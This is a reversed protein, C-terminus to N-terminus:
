LSRCVNDRDIIGEGLFFILIENFSVAIILKLKSFEKAYIQAASTMENQMADVRAQAKQVRVEYDIKEDEWDTQGATQPRKNKLEERLEAVLSELLSIERRLRDVEDSDRMNVTNNKLAQQLEINETRLKELELMGDRARQTDKLTKELLAELKAIVKEQKRITDKYLNTKQLEKSLEQLRRASDNYAHQMNELETQM